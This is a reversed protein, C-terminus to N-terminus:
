LNNISIFPRLWRVVKYYMYFYTERALFPLKNEISKYRTTPTASPYANIQLDKAMLMARKMHLPDSVIVFRTLNRKQAVQKAYYLNQYTTRSQTETLINSESVGRDRAYKKAVLSEALENINSQGGTFIIDQVLDSKYLDIAHNIRERFVPSPEEGWVAAGLVIAADGGSTTLKSDYFYISGALYGITVIITSIVILVIRIKSPAKRKKM